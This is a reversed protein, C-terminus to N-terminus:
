DIGDVSALPGPGMFPVDGHTPPVESSMAVLAYRETEWSLVPVKSQSISGCNRTESVRIRRDNLERVEELPSDRHIV